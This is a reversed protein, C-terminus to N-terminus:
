ASGTMEPPWLRWGGVARDTLLCTCTLTETQDCSTFRLARPDPNLIQVEGNHGVTLCCDPSEVSPQVRNGLLPTRNWLHWIIICAYAQTCHTRSSTECLGVHFKRDRGWNSARSPLLMAGHSGKLSHQRMGSFPKFISAVLCM